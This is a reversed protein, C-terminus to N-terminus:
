VQTAEQNQRDLEELEAILTDREDRTNKLARDKKELEVKMDELEELDGGVSVNEEAARLREQLNLQCLLFVIVVLVM